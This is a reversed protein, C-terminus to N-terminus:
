TDKKGKRRTFKKAEKLLRRTEQSEEDVVQSDEWDTDDDDDDDESLEFEDSSGDDIFPDQYDYDDEPTEDRYKKKM